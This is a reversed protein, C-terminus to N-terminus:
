KTTPAAAPAPVGNGTGIDSVVNWAIKWAGDVQKYGVIWNGKEPTAKKTKPDVGSFTYTARYVAMDGSAAVDVTEDAVELKADPTATFLTTTMKTDEDPGKINPADHFMGVMDPADHSVAKAVDHANFAALMDHVDAKVADAVKATDVAPKAAPQSCAALAAVALVSASACILKQGIM